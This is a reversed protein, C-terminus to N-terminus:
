AKRPAKGPPLPMRSSDPILYLRPAPINARRALDQVMNHLAFNEQPAIERVGHLALVLRDSFWYAAINLIPALVAFSLLYPKGLLGGMTVFIASLTGLLIFTKFHNRM